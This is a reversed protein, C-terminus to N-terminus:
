MPGSAVRRISEGISGFIFRSKRGNSREKEDEYEKQSEFDKATQADFTKSSQIVSEDYKSRELEEGIRDVTDYGYTDVNQHWSVRNKGSKGHKENSTNSYEHDFYEDKFGLLISVVEETNEYSSTMAYDLPTSGNNDQQILAEQHSWFLNFITRTDSGEM